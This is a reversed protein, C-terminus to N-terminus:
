RAAKLLNGIGDIYGRRGSNAWYVSQADLTMTSPDKQSTAITKIDAGTCKPMTCTKIKGENEYVNNGDPQFEMSSWYLASGAVAIAGITAKPEELVIKTVNACGATACSFIEGLNTGWYVTSGDITLDNVVGQFDPVLLEPTCAAKSACRKLVGGGNEAWVITGNAAVSILEGGFGIVAATQLGNACDPLSCWHVAGPTGDTTWYVATNDIAVGYSRELMVGAPFKRFENGALPVRRVGGKNSSSYDSAWVHTDNVVIRWPYPDVADASLNVPGVMASACGNKPCRMTAGVGGHTGVYVSDGRVAVSGPSKMDIALTCLGFGCVGNSCDHECAGCHKVDTQLDIKTCDFPIRADGGESGIPGDLSAGELGGEGGGPGGNEDLFIEKVGILSACAGLVVTIALTSGLVTVARFIRRPSQM